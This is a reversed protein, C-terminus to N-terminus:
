WSSCLRSRTALQVLNLQAISGQGSASLFGGGTLREGCFLLDIIDTGQIPSNAPDTTLGDLDGISGVAAGSADAPNANLCMADVQAETFM